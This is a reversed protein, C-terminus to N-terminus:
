VLGNKIPMNTPLAAFKFGLESFHQLTRPLVYSMNKWAKQSDHLVVISGATTHELTKELCREPSLYREFDGTLVDWMVVQHMSLLPRAQSLKIRGYPPRFLNTPVPLIEQCATVNQVYLQNETKWGNLHNFTHNGISHNRKLVEDMVRPHKQINDGICFFTAKAQYDDLQQLVWETIDPIPGDDFTLYIIKEDTPKNWVFESYFARLLRPSKHLFLQM